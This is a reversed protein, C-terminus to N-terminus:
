SLIIGVAAALFKPTNKVMAEVQFVADFLQTVTRVMM